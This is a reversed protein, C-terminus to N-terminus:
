PGCPVKGVQGREHDGGAFPHKASGVLGLPGASRTKEADLWASVSSPFPGWNEYDM